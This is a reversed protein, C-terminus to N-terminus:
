VRFFTKGQAKPLACRGPCSVRRWHNDRRWLRVQFEAVEGDLPDFSSSKWSGHGLLIDLRGCFFASSRRSSVYIKAGTPFALDTLLLRIHGVQALDTAEHETASLDLGLLQNAHFNHKRIILWDIEPGLYYFLCLLYSKGHFKSGHVLRVLRPQSLKDLSAQSGSLSAQVKATNRGGTARIRSVKWGPSFDKAPRFCQGHFAHGFSILRSNGSRKLM